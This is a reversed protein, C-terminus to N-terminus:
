QSGAAAPPAPDSAAARADRQLQAFVIANVVLKVPFPVGAREPALLPPEWTLAPDASLGALWGNAFVATVAPPRVWADVGEKGAATSHDSLATAARLDYYCTYVPHDDPLAEATLADGYRLGEHSRLGAEAEGRLNGVFFGGALLYRALALGDQAPRVGDIVLVAVEGADVQDVSLGASGGVLRLPVDTQRAVLDVLYELSRPAITGPRLMDSTQRAFAVGIPGPGAPGSPTASPRDPDVSAAGVAPTQAPPMLPTCGPALCLVALCPLWPRLAIAM